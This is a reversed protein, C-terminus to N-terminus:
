HDLYKAFASNLRAEAELLKHNREALWARDRALTERAMAIMRQVEAPQPGGVGVRTRVMMEPSLTAKFAAEDLPLKTTTQNYKQAAETYLKVADGYPFQSPLWNHAKAHNVVVTAFHHGIRFPVQHLRQLTEALEMSTTWDGNLEELSRKPDIRLAKMVGNFQTLMEVAWVFTRSPEFAAKYDTMGPPLNHARLLMLQTSAVVDSAKSRATQVVGPNLKQPMASSTYTQSDDLLMWPRSQHYQTHIDQLMAGIRIAVSSMIGAAELPVDFSIVQGSDFSNVVLGDFGLLDSLRQRNLPWSSNALVATGMPSLNVRPYLDRLRQADRAFSDAFAMLYHGYSVPQAQVGNTYAPVFTETHRGAIDILVQRTAMLADASDLVARRLRMARIAAGMDQRSRGSHILTADAGAKDSIIREVQLVDTPRKGGPERAQTISYQVGEAIPKALRAPIIGEELLMVTSAMNIRGLWYFQDQAKALASTADQTIVGRIRNSEEQCEQTTKCATDRVDAAQATIFSLCLCAALTLQKM